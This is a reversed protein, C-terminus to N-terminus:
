VKGTELFKIVEEIDPLQSIPYVKVFVVKQNEDVVINARESIGDQERFIDYLKAAAGHPWFDALVRLNKLNMSAAWAKKSPVSDISLGVPITNLKTLRDFNQELAIMQNQCVATWALPQFSLLVKKGKFEALHFSKGNQDKLTFDPAESGIKIM